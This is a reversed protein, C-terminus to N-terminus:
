TKVIENENSLSLYRHGKQSMHSISTKVDEESIAPDKPHKANYDDVITKIGITDGKKCPVMVLTIWHYIKGHPINKLLVEENDGSLILRSKRSELHSFIYGVEEQDIKNYHTENWTDVLEHLGIAELSMHKLYSLCHAEFEIAIQIKKIYEQKVSYFLDRVLPAPNSNTEATCVGVCLQYFDKQKVM